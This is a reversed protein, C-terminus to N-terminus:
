DFLAFQDFSDLDQPREVLASLELCEMGPPLALETPYVDPLIRKSLYAVLAMVLITCVPVAAVWENSRRTVAAVWWRWTFMAIAALTSILAMIGAIRSKLRPRKAWVAYCRPCLTHFTNFTESESSQPLRLETAKLPMEVRWGAATVYMSPVGCMQCNLSRGQLPYRRRMSKAFYRVAHNSSRFFKRIKKPKARAEILAEAEAVFPPLGDADYTAYDLVAPPPNDPPPESM